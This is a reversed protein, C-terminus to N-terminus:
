RRLGLSELYLRTLDSLPDQRPESEFEGVNSPFGLSEGVNGAPQAMCAAAVDMFQM